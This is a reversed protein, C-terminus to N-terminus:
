YSIGDLLYQFLLGGGEGGESDAVPDDAVPCCHLQPHSGTSEGNNIRVFINSTKQDYSSLGKDGCDSSFSRKSSLPTPFPTRNLLLAHCMKLLKGAIPCTGMSWYSLPEHLRSM